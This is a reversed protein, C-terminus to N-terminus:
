VHMICPVDIMNTGYASYVNCPSYYLSLVLPHSVFFQRLMKQIANESM